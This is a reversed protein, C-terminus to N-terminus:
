ATTAASTPLTKSWAKYGMWCLVIFIAYLFATLFLRKYCYLGIYLVNVTIWLFWNEILKRGLMFQATLSMATTTADAYPVDSDSFRRLISSILFASAVTIGLLLLGFRRGTRQVSLRSHDKGGYLWKWWGYVSIGMFFLQLCADAYLRHQWFMVLYLLNNAIGIPWNWIKERVQLFVCVAGTLFGLVEILSM